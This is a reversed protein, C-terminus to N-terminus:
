EAASYATRPKSNWGPKVVEDMLDKSNLVELESNLQEETVGGIEVPTDNNGATIQVNSRANQVLIMAHSEYKRPTGFIWFLALAMVAGVVLLFLKIHRFLAEVLVIVSLERGSSAPALRM